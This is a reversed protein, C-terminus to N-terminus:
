EQNPKDSITNPRSSVTLLEAVEEGIFISL